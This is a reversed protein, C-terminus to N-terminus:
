VHLVVICVLAFLLRSDHAFALLATRGLKAERGM